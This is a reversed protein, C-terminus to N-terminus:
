RPSPRLPNSILTPGANARGGDRLWAEEQRPTLPTTPFAAGGSIGPHSPSLVEQLAAPFDLATAMWEPSCRHKQEMLISVFSSSSRRVPLLSLAHLGCSPSLLSVWLYPSSPFPQFYSSFPSPSFSPLSLFLCAPLCLLPSFISQPGGPLTGQATLLCAQPCTCMSPCVCVHKQSSACKCLGSGM